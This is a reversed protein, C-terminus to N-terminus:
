SIKRIYSSIDRQMGDFNHIVREGDIVTFKFDSTPKFYAELRKYVDFVKKPPKSIKRSVMDELMIRYTEMEKEFAHMVADDGKPKKVDLTLKAGHICKQVASSHFLNERGMGEEDPFYTYNGLGPDFKCIAREAYDGSANQTIEYVGMIRRISIGGGLEEKKMHVFVDLNSIVKPDLGFSELITDAASHMTGFTQYDEKALDFLAENHGKTQTEGALVGDCSTQLTSKLAKTKAEIAWDGAEAPPVPQESIWHDDRFRMEPADEYTVMKLGSPWFHLFSNLGVTKGSSTPGIFLMGRGHRLLYILFASLEEDVTSRSIIEPLTFVETRHHRFALTYPSKDEELKLMSEVYSINRIHFDDTVFGVKMTKNKEDIIGYKSDRSLWSVLRDVGLSDLRVDSDCTGYRRHKVVTKEMGDEQKLLEFHEINKEDRLPAHLESLNVIEYAIMEAMLEATHDDIYMVKLEEFVVSKIEKIRDNLKKKERRIGVFGKFGQERHIKPDKYKKVIRDKIDELEKGDQRDHLFSHFTYYQNGEGDILVEVKFPGVDYKADKDILRLGAYTVTEKERSRIPLFDPFGTFRSYIEMIRGPEMIRDVRAEVLRNHLEGEYLESQEDTRSVLESVISTESVIDELRKHVKQLGTLCGKCKSRPLSRRLGQKIELEEGIQKLNLYALFPNSFLLGDPHEYRNFLNDFMYRFENGSCSESDGSKTKSKCKQDLVDEFIKDSITTFDNAGFEELLKGVDLAYSKLIQFDGEVYNHQFSGDGSTFSIREIEPNEALSRLVISLCGESGTIRPKAKSDRRLRVRLEKGLLNAEGCLASELIGV